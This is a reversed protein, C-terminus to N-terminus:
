FTEKILAMRYLSIEKDKLLSIFQEETGFSFEKGNIVLGENGYELWFLNKYITCRKISEWTIITRDYKKIIELRDEYINYTIEEKYHENFCSLDIKLFVKKIYNLIRFYLFITIITIVPLSYIWKNAGLLIFIIIGITVEIMILRHSLDSLENRGNKNKYKLNQYYYELIKKDYITHNQLIVEM